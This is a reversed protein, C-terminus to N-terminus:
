GSLVNVTFAVVGINFVFAAMAHGLITRRMQRSTVQVDVTQFTMGISFALYLFDWYDPEPTGQFTLGEDDRSDADADGYHLHAYRLAYVTNVLLWSLALSVVSLAIGTTDASARMVTGVVVLVAAMVAVTVAILVTPSADNRRSERRMRDAGHRLLPANAALFGAAAVAFGLLFAHAGEMRTVMMATTTAMVLLFVAFPRSILRRRRTM